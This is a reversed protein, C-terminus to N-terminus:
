PHIQTVQLQFEGVGGLIHGLNYHGAAAPFGTDFPTAPTFSAPLGGVSQCTAAASAPHTTTTGALFVFTGGAASWSSLNIDQECNVNGFIPSHGYMSVQCDGTNGSVVGGGFACWGWFGFGSATGPFTATGAFAIQWNAPGYAQAPSAAVVGLVGVVLLGLISRPFLRRLAKMGLRRFAPQFSNEAAYATQTESDM